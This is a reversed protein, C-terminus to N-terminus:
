RDPRVTMLASTGRVPVFVQGRMTSLRKYTGCTAASVRARDDALMGLQRAAHLARMPLGAWAPKDWIEKAVQERGRPTLGKSRAEFEVTAATVLPVLDGSVAFIPVQWGDSPPRDRVSVGPTVPVMASRLSHPDLADGGSGELLAVWDALRVTVDLPTGIPAALPVAVFALVGLPPATFMGFASEASVLRVPLDADWRLQRRCFAALTRADPGALHFSV